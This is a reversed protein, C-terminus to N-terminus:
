HLINQDAAMHEYNQGQMSRCHFCVVDAFVDKTSIFYSTHHLFCTEYGAEMDSFNRV